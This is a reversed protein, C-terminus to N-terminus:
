CLKKCLIDLFTVRILGWYSNVDVYTWRIYKKNGQNYESSAKGLQQTVTNVNEFFSQLPLSSPNTAKVM